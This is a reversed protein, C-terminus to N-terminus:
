PTGEEVLAVAIVDAMERRLTCETQGVRLTLSGEGAEISVIAVETGPYLGHDGLHRLLAADTDPVHSIIVRSGSPFESMRLNSTEPVEGDRTPIPSGHPDHTPHGLLEDIRDEIEESIVHEWREAEDHVQDWPVGMAQHLYLEVLRHHRLVELAIMRGSDTLVVGQYPEHKVLNMEALKKVMGTVSAPAVGLHDALATTAVKPQKSQLDYIAKLYDEVAQTHM